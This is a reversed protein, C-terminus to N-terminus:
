FWGRKRFLVLMTGALSLGVTTVFDRRSLTM